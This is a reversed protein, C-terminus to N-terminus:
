NELNKRFKKKLREEEKDQLDEEWATAILEEVDHILEELRDFDMRTLRRLEKYAGCANLVDSVALKLNTDLNAM